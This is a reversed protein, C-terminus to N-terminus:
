RYLLVLVIDDVDNFNWEAVAWTVGYIYVVGEEQVYVAMGTTPTTFVWMTESEDYQAIKAEEGAWDGSATAEVLYRDGDAPSPPPDALIGIV